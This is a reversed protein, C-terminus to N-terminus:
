DVVANEISLNKGINPLISTFRSIWTQLPTNTLIVNKPLRVSTLLFPPVTAKAILDFALFFGVWHTDSLLLNWRISLFPPMIAVTNLVLFSVGSIGVAMM